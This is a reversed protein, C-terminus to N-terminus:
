LTQHTIVGIIVNYLQHASFTTYKICSITIISLSALHTIKLFTQVLKPLNETFINIDSSDPQCAEQKHLVMCM